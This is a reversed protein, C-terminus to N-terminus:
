SPHSEPCDTGIVVMESRAKFVAEALAPEMRCGLDGEGQPRYPFGDGFVRPWGSQTAREEFRVEVSTPLSEALQRAWALAHRTMDRALAAAREPGVAPILRTKAQGPEPFRTFIVLRQKTM